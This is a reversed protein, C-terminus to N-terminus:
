YTIKWVLNQRSNGLEVRPGLPFARVTWVAVVSGSGEGDSAEPYPKYNNSLSFGNTKESTM